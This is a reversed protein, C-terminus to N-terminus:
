RRGLQQAFVNHRSEWLLHLVLPAFPFSYLLCTQLSWKASRNFCMLLMRVICSVTGVCGVLIAVVLILGWFHWDRLLQLSTGHQPPTAELLGATSSIEVVDVDVSKKPSRSPSPESALERRSLLPSTEASAPPASDLAEETAFAAEGVPSEAVDTAPSLSTTSSIGPLTLAGFLHAVGSVLSLFTLFRTVNLVPAGTSDPFTFFHDAILSLLLPSCGFLAMSTGSAVGIYHPFTQTASFVISFYRCLTDIRNLLLSLHPLNPPLARM